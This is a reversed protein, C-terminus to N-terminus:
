REYNGLFLDHFLTATPGHRNMTELEALKLITLFIYELKKRKKLPKLATQIAYLYGM